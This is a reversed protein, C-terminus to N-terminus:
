RRLGLVFLVVGVVAFAAGLGVLVWAATRIYPVRVGLDARVAVGQSADANMIVVRYEGDSLEWDVVQRGPGSASATWWPQEGPQGPTRTGPLVTGDYRLRDGWDVDRIVEVAVGTLWADVEAAPGIAVFIAGGDTREARVRVRAEDVWSSPAADEIEAVPSVIAYTETSLRHRPTSLFGDGDVLVLVAGGGLACAGGVLVGIVGLVILVVKV